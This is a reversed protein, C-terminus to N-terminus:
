SLRAELANDFHEKAENIFGFHTDDVVMKGKTVHGVLTFPVGCEIMYDLFEDETTNDVTVVVRGQSEGFLYADERIESDSVIDFGLANPMGMETLTIFLGGDACDHAASILRDSILGKVAAQM